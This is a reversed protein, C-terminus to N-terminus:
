PSQPALETIIVAGESFGTGCSNQPKLAHPYCSPRVGAVQWFRANKKKSVCTAGDPTWEAEPVWDVTDLQVGAHDYINVLTGTVTYPTGDGCYDGRLARVCTALEPAHGTWPKYGLEVCKAIASGRCALTFETAEPHYSGGGAVGQALNWTGGVSDAFMAAGSPDLCLPRWTGDASVSIKYSWVDANTGTGQMAEDIRLAVNAGSSLLGTWTSGVLETGALPAGAVAVGIPTGNPSIGNPSIGNLTVGNASIENPSIGNPSIGNPSIGNPSIGNPSIGNPSIGNPSIGNPSVVSDNAVALIDENVICGSIIWL